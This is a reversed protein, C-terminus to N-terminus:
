TTMNFSTSKNGRNITTVLNRLKIPLLPVIKHLLHM